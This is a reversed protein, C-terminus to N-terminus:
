AHPVEELQRIIWETIAERLLDGRTVGREAALRQLIIAEEPEIRTAVVPREMDNRRSSGNYWLNYVSDIPM